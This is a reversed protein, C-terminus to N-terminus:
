WDFARTSFAHNQDRDIVAEARKAVESVRRQRFLGARRAIVSQQVLSSGQCPNAVIDRGKAAVRLIHRDETFAGAGLRDGLQHGQRRCVAEIVFDDQLATGAGSVKQM